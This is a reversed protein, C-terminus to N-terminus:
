KKVVAWVEEPGRAKEKRVRPPLKLPNNVEEAARAPM